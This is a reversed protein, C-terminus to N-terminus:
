IGDADRSLRVWKRPTLPIGDWDIMDDGYDEWDIEYDTLHYPNNAPHSMLERVAPIAYIIATKFFFNCDSVTPSYPSEDVTIKELIIYRAFENFEKGNDPFETDWRESIIGVESIIDGVEIDIARVEKM